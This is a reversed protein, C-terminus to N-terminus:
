LRSAVLTFTMGYYDAIPTWYGTKGSKTHVYVRVPGIPTITWSNGDGSAVVRIGSGDERELEIAYDHAKNDAGAATWYLHLSFDNQNGPALRTVGGIDSRALTRLLVSSCNTTPRTPDVTVGEEFVLCLTRTSGSLDMEVSAARNSYVDPTSRGEEQDVYPGRGDSCIRSPAPVSGCADDAVTVVLPFTKTQALGFRPWAIGIVLAVVVLCVRSFPYSTM